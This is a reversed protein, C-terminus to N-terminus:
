GQPQRWRRRLEVFALYLLGSFGTGGCLLAAWFFPEGPFPDLLVPAPALAVGDRRYLEVVPGPLGGTVLTGGRTLPFPTQGGGESLPDDGARIRVFYILPDGRTWDAATVPVYHDPRRPSGFDVQYEPHAIGTMVVRDSPPANSKSLDFARFAEITVQETLTSYVYWGAGAAMAVFAILMIREPSASSPAPERLGLRKALIVAPLVLVALAGVFTAKLEYEDFMSLQWEALLRYLGTYTWWGYCVYALCAASWVQLYNRVTMAEGERWCHDRAVDDHEGALVLM